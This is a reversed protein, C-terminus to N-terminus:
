EDLYFVHFMLTGEILSVTGLFKYKTLDFPIIHGTGVVRIKVIKSPTHNETIKSVAYVVIENRQEMVSLIKADEPLILEDEDKLSVTYKLIRNGTQKM